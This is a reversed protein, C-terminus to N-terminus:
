ADEKLEKLLNLDYLLTLVKRAWERDLEKEKETLKDYPLHAQREWHKRNSENDFEMFHRTWHSWQRHELEALKELVEEETVTKEWGYSKAQDFPVGSPAKEVAMPLRMWLDVRKGCHPCWNWCVTTDGADDDSFVRFEKNCYPCIVVINWLKM